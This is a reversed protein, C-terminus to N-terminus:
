AICHCTPTYSTPSIYVCMYLLHTGLSTYMHHRQSLLAYTCMCKARFLSSRWPRICKRWRIKITFELIYIIEGAQFFWLSFLANRFWDGIDWSFETLNRMCVIALLIVFHFRERVDSCSMQFLNNKEFKKFVSGKLEVFQWCLFLLPWM